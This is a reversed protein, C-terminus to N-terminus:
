AAVKDAVTKLVGGEMWMVRGMKHAALNPLASYDRATMCVLAAVKAAQLTRFVGPRWRPALVDLRDVLQYRAGQKLGVARAMVFDCRWRESESLLAYPRGDYTLNCDESLAVTAMEGQMSIAHLTANVESLRRRFITAQLGEAALMDALAKTAEWAANITRSRLMAKIAALKAEEANLDAVADREAQPEAVPRQEAALLQQEATKATRREAETAVIEAAIKREDEQAVLFQQMVREHEALAAEYERITMRQGIKEVVIGSQVRKPIIGGGCHPCVVNLRPDTPRPFKDAEEALRDVDAVRGARMAEAGRLRNEIDPLVSAAARLRDIEAAGVARSALIADVRARAEQVAAAQEDVSYEVGSFLGAPTWGIRKKEGWREKTVEQWNGQLRRQDGDYRKAMAPWGHTEIDDWLLGLAEAGDKDDPDIGAAPHQRSWAQLDSFTPEADWVELLVEYRTEASLGMFPTSGLAIPGTPNAQPQGQTQVDAGQPGYLIRVGGNQWTGWASGEGAGDRVLAGVGAKKGVGRLPWQGLIVASVAQMLSTKGAGNDGGVLVIGAGDLAVDAQKVGLVDKIKVRM